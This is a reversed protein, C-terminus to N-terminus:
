AARSDLSEVFFRGGEADLARVSTRWLPGLRRHYMIAAERFGVKEVAKRSPVNEVTVKTVMRQQGEQKLADAIACWAAPAIGRGRAATGTVSDELCVMGPPLSLGGGRAALVPTRERFIWCSFLLQEGDLVLWLDNGSEIRSRADSPSVTELDELLAVDAVQGRRLTLGPELERRPREAPPSLEYWIHRESFVIRDWAGEWAWRAAGGVGHLRVMRRAKFLVEQPTM